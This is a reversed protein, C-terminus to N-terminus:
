QTEKKVRAKRQNIQKQGEEKRDEGVYPPVGKHSFPSVTIRADVIM